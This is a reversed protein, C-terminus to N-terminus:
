QHNDGETSVSTTDEMQRYAAILLIMQNYSRIGAKVGHSKLYKDYIVDRYKPMWDKYREVHNSIEDLHYKLKPNLNQYEEKWVERHFYKYYGVLYRWYALEASFRVTPNSSKLCTLYSVFNCVSEDTFGYGHAMEHALTFPYQLPYIGSDLHGEFAHPIYIGSTRIHLLSGGFLSRVRVRGITPIKWKTLLDEQLIRTENELKIIDTPAEITLNTLMSDLIKTQDRFTQSIYVSDVKVSPLNLMKGIHPQQYNFGWTIYFFVVIWILCAGISELIWYKFDKKKYFFYGIFVPAIIYLSPIPLFGLTFDHLGRFAQFISKFYLYDFIIPSKSFIWNFILVIGLTIGGVKIRNWNM